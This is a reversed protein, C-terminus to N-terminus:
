KILIHIFCLIPFACLKIDFYREAVFLVYYKDEPDEMCGKRTQLVEAEEEKGLTM